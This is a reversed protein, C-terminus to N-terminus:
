KKKGDNKGTALVLITRSVGCLVKFASGNLHLCSHLSVDSSGPLTRM